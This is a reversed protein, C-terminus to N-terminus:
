ANTIIGHLGDWKAEQEIKKLDLEINSEGTIKLYKKYGEYTNGPFIEYGIPLGKKTVM